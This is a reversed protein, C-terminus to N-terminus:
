LFLEAIQVANLAAGKRLQDGSLLLCLGSKHSLDKRIRGVLVDDGHSAALPTPFRNEKPDDIVQVGPADGLIERAREPSLPRELELTVSETHARKVPVRVCTASIGIDPNNWIKRTEWVMKMEEINYGEEGIKSDHSFVNFACPENFVVPSPSEGALVQRSQETLEELAKAGAGSAAQYTSVVMRTVTAERHLPTVAVLLVITSCNPNAIIAGPKKGQRVEDLAEPNVEPIILPIGDTQRFASSNDVVITGGDAAIPAYQKSIAGGASFFALDVGQFSTETLAEVVHKEGRFLLESGASRPSSLLRLSRMPFNREELIELFEKGVAGTAGVISVHPPIKM